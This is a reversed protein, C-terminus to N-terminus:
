TKDKEKLRLNWNLKGCSCKLAEPVKGKSNLLQPIHKYDKCTFMGLLERYAEVVPKFDAPQFDTWKNYHVNPNVAWQECNSKKIAESLKDDFDVIAALAERNNWSNAAEKAKTIISKFQEIAAHLYDGFEWNGDGKFVVRAQLLDCVDNLFCEGNRRLKWAAQPVDGKTIDDLISKWFDEDTWTAPGTEISWWKFEIMNKSSVVNETKLQNAWVRDHTTIIFQKDPFHKLLTKCVNRRHKADVSMVVDDLVISSLNDKALFKHLGLFLCLGMSDQHGESHMAGPHFKGRGYFDVELLLEAERPIFTSAFDKEDDGHLEKYFNNFDGNISNFIGQLTDDRAKEFHSLIADSQNFIREAKGLKEHADKYQGLLVELKTLVTWSSLQPSIEYKIGSIEKEIKTNLDEIKSSHFLDEILKNSGLNKDIPALLISNVSELGTSISEIENKCETLGTAKYYTDVTTFSTKYELIKKRIKEAEDVIGKVKENGKKSEGLREQLYKKLEAVDWPKGCLPCRSTDDILGLGMEILKRQTINRLLERDKSLELVKKKLSDVESLLLQKSELLTKIYKIAQKLYEWSKVDEESKGTPQEIGEKLNGFILKALNIAKLIGRHTNIHKLCEDESFDPVGLLIKIDTKTKLFADSAAKSEKELSNRLAVLVKRTKDVVELDLLAHIEAARDGATAMIYKLIERRSLKHQGLSAVNLSPLISDLFKPDCIIKNPEAVRRELAIKEKIGKVEVEAKVIAEKLKHDVHPGHRKTSLESSGEGELRSIKGTLLFDIADVIASKGSGNPGFVVMSNGNPELTIKKIGRFKEIELKHIKM